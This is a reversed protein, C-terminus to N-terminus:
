HTRPTAMAYKARLKKPWRSPHRDEASDADSPKSPTEPVASPSQPSPKAPSPARVAETTGQEELTSAPEAQPASSSEAAPAFFPKPTIAPYRVARPGDRPPQSTRIAQGHTMSQCGTLWSLVVLAAACVGFRTSSMTM